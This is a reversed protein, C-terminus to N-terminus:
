CSDAQGKNLVSEPDYGLASSVDDKVISVNYFARLNRLTTKGDGLVIVGRDSDYVFEQAKPTYDGEDSSSDKKSITLQIENGDVTTFLKWEGSGKM